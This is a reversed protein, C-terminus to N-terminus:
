VAQNAERAAHVAAVFRRVKAHDKQGPANEVGSCVDVAFPRVTRIADAVNEITLGGALILRAVRARLSAAAPWPFTEGTGGPANASWSDLLVADCACAAAASDSYDPGVRFAKIAFSANLDQLYQPSEEGHLQVADLALDSTIAKVTNLEQNVFVGVLRTRPFLPRVSAIIAAAAKPSICRLSEPSFNLGLMEVGEAACFMADDTTTVGCVKVAVGQDFEFM